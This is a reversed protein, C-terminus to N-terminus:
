CGEGSPLSVPSKLALFTGAARRVPLCGRDGVAAGTKDVIQVLIGMRTDRALVALRTHAALPCVPDGLEDYLYLGSADTILVPLKVRVDESGVTDADRPNAPGFVVTGPMALPDSSQKTHVGPDSLVLYPDSPPGLFVMGLTAGADLRVSQGNAQCGDAACGGAGLWATETNAVRWIQIDPLTVLEASATSIPATAGPSILVIPTPPRGHASAATTTSGCAVSSLLVLVAPVMTSIKVRM